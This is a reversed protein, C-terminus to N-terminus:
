KSEELFEKVYDDLEDVDIANFSFGNDPDCTFSHEKLYTEFALVGETFGEDYQNRKMSLLQIKLEEIEEVLKNERLVIMRWMEAEAAAKVASKEDFGQLEKVFAIDILGKLYSNHQELVDREETLERILALSYTHLEHCNGRSPCEKCNNQKCCELSKIIEERNLKM